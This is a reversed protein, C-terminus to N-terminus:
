PMTMTVGPGPPLGFLYWLSLLLGLSVLLAMSYPLEYAIVTGLGAPRDDAHRYQEFIGILVPLYSKIPSITNTASDGVRFSLQTAAPSLGVLAFMPVAVPALILWKTAGSPLVLNIAAVLLVFLLILPLGTLKFRVLLGAGKIALITAMESRGFLYLFLAAPLAVAMFGLAGRLGDEILKPVESASRIRGAGIGFAVGVIFFFSFLIPVIGVILGSDPLVRGSPHRLLGNEPIIAILIGSLVLLAAIAAWRLGRLEEPMLQHSAQEAAPLIRKDSRLAKVVVLETVLTIVLTVVFTAAVMFYWNMVTHVPAKVQMGSTASSTIGALLADTGSVLLNAAFGGSAAAYGVVVGVWPDRGVARFLAAGISTVLIVGATSAVNANIGVFALAATILYPPAGLLTKRLLASVLGTKEIIGVGILIVVTIGLPPFEVYIKVFDALFQRMESQSFLNVVHVTKTFPTGGLPHHGTVYTASVGIKSLLFSLAITGLGFLSFLTFPHPLKNALAEVRTFLGMLAHPRTDTM